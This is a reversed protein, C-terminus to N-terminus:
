FPPDSDIPPMPPPRPAEGDEQPAGADYASANYPAAAGSGYAGGGGGGGLTALQSQVWDPTNRSNIWLASGTQKHKFDPSKPNRKNFRNDWFADPNDFVERWMREAEPDVAAGYAPAADYAAAAPEVPVYSGGGAPAAAAYDPQAPAYAPPVSYAPAAAYAVGFHEPASGADPPANEDVLALDQVNVKLSLRPGTDSQWEDQTLSGSVVIQTGKALYAAAVPALDDWFAVDYWDCRKPADMPDSPRRPLAVCLRGNAVRKGGDLHRVEPPAALRGTLTVARVRLKSWAVKPPPPPVGPPAQNYAAQGGGAAEYAPAGGGGPPGWAAARAVYAGARRAAGGSVRWSARAAAPAAM